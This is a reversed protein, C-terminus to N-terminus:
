SEGLVPSATRLEARRALAYEMVLRLSDAVSGEGDHHIGADLERDALLDADPGNRDPGCSADRSVSCCGVSWWWGPLKAGFEVITEALKKADQQEM